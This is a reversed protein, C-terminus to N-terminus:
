REVEHLISHTYGCSACFVRGNAHAELVKELYPALRDRNELALRDLQRLVSPKLRVTQPVKPAIAKKTAKM